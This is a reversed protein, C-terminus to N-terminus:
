TWPIIETLWTEEVTIITGEGYITTNANSLM